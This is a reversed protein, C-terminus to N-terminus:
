LLFLGEEWFPWFVSSQLPRERIRDKWIWLWRRPLRCYLVWSFSFCSFSLRLLSLPYNWVSLRGPAVVCFCLDGYVWECLMNMRGSVFWVWVVWCLQWPMAPLVFAICLLLFITINRFFSRLLHSIHFCWAWEWSKFWCSICSNGISCCRKIIFLVSRWSGKYGTRKLCLIM